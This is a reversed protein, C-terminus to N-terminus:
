SCLAATQAASHSGTGSQLERVTQLNSELRTDSEPTELIFPKSKLQPHQLVASMGARGIRGLGNIGVRM